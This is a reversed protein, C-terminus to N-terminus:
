LDSTLPRCKTLLDSYVATTIKAVKDWSYRENAYEKIETRRGELNLFLDSAFYREITRALDFSDQPRFVFGTKGEIIEERLSGVDAAIAPLGFSYGLFLVGSQSQFVQAYPLVLVDAAKFYLETTEDPVYEIKEIVRDRICSRAITEQIQKWYDESGKPKGVIILRYSRDERVLDSFAAVLYELGKYPAINGFFLVAKDSSDIGLGCKAEASSLSTNPVTNNIGFPIVSIKRKPISFETGLEGKMGDTHVFIHDSLTYQIKLACRNLWSDNSDREGANVNHATFVVRKGLAKYYFMLLIRDVLQFKNNWLIHFVKPRATAAYRVLRVYYHLVRLAKAVPSAEPRQDGRLNLFDVRPNALLEPSILDDSGIFDLHIGRCTLAAAIGLAYPKDGGGTLLAIRIASQQNSIQSQRGAIGAEERDEIGDETVLGRVKAPHSYGQRVPSIETKRSM